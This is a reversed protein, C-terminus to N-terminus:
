TLLDRLQREFSRANETHRQAATTDGDQRALGAMDWEQDAKRRLRQIQPHYDTVPKGAILNKIAM